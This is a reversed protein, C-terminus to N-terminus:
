HRSISPHSPQHKNSYKVSQMSTATGKTSDATKMSGTTTSIGKRKQQHNYVGITFNNMVQVHQAPGRKWYLTGLAWLYITVIEL